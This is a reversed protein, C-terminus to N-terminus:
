KRPFRTVVALSHAARPGRPKTKDSYLYRAGNLANFAWRSAYNTCTRNVTLPIFDFNLRFLAIPPFDALGAVRTTGRHFLYWRRAVGSGGFVILAVTWLSFFLRKPKKLFMKRFDSAAATEGSSPTRTMPAVGTAGGLTCTGTALSTEEVQSTLLM